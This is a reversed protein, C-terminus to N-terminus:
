GGGNGEGHGIRCRLVVQQPTGHAQIWTELVAEQEASM